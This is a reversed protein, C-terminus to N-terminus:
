LQSLLIDKAKNYYEENQFYYAGFFLSFANELLHNALIHYELSSELIKFQKYLCQDIESDQINNMSMFKIWNIGRLSIPYPELGDKLNGYDHCYLKILEKGSTTELSSDFLFDFYNLNYTWLKGNAAYNWDVKQDFQHPLNLFSVKIPGQVAVEINTADPQFSFNTFKLPEKLPAFGKLSGFSIPDSVRNRVKYYIQYFVQVWKLHIVTYIILRLKNWM